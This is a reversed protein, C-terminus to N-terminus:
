KGKSKKENKKKEKYEKSKDIEIIEVGKKEFIEKQTAKNNVKEYYDFWAQNLKNEDIFTTFIGIQKKLGDIRELLIQPNNESNKIEWEKKKKLLGDRLVTSFGPCTGEKRMKDIWNILEWDSLSLSYIRSVM